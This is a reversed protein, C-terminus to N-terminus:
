RQGEEIKIKGFADEKLRLREDGAKDLIRVTDQKDTFESLRSHILRIGESREIDQANPNYGRGIRKMLVYLEFTIPVPIDVGSKDPRLVFWLKGPTAEQRTRRRSEEPDVSPDTWKSLFRYEPTKIGDIFEIFEGTSGQDGTWGRLADSLTDNMEAADDQLSAVGESGEETHDLFTYAGLFESFWSWDIATELEGLGDVEDKSDTLYQRRLTTRVKEVTGTDEMHPTKGLYASLKSPNASWELVQLDVPKAVQAVPDLLGTRETATGDVNRFVTNWIISEPAIARGYAVSKGIPCTEHSAGVQELESPLVISAILNLMRRPNLYANDVISSAALLKTLNERVAENTVQRANYQLPCEGGAPCDHLENEYARHFPSEDSAFDFKEVISRLLGGGLRDPHTDYLSRHSLNLVVVDDTEHVRRTKAADIADWIDPFTSRNGKREFFDIALGLNIALGSRSGEEQRMREAAHDLFRGLTEDYTETKAASATADMHISSETLSDHGSDRARKYARSLLASKGDGASGTIILLRGDTDYKEVFFSLVLEDERTPVYLAQRLENRDIHGGVISGSEGM